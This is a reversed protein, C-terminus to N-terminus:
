IGSAGTWARRTCTCSSRAPAPRPGPIRALSLVDASGYGDQVIADMTSAATVPPPAEGSIATRQREPTM